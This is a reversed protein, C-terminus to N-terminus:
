VVVVVSISCRWAYGFRAVPMRVGSGSARLMPEPKM